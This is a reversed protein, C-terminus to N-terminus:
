YIKTPCDILKDMSPALPSTDMATIFISNPVEDPNAVKSFPRQRISTWEGSEILQEQIKEKSLNTLETPQFSDFIVEDDGNLKIVISLFKRKEGRNIEIIKGTGPSTFKVKPHKKDVFLLQGLKVEDGVAVHMTPKLGIYDEGLLAVKTVQNCNEVDQIPEGIIPLNLGKKIKIVIM